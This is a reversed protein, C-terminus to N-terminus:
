YNIFKKIKKHDTKVNIGDNSIYKYSEACTPEPQNCFVFQKGPNARALETMVRRFFELDLQYVCAVFFSPDFSWQVINGTDKKERHFAMPETKTVVGDEFRVWCEADDGFSKIHMYESVLQVLTLREEDALGFSETDAINLAHNFIRDYGWVEEQQDYDLDFPEGDNIVAISHGSFLNLMVKKKAKSTLIELVLLIAREIGETDDSGFFRIPSTFSRRKNM